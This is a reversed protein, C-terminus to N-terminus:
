GMVEEPGFLVDNRWMNFAVTEAIDLDVAWTSFAISLACYWLARDDEPWDSM